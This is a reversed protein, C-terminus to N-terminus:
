AVDPFDLVDACVSLFRVGGDVRIKQHKLLFSSEVKTCHLQRDTRGGVKEKLAV